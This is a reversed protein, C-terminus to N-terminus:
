GRRGNVTGLRKANGPDLRPETPIDSARLVVSAQLRTPDANKFEVTASGADVVVSGAAYLAGPGATVVPISASGAPVMVTRAMLFESSGGAFLRGVYEEEVTMNGDAPLATTADARKEVPACCGALVEWPM